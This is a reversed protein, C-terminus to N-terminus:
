MYICFSQYNEKGSKLSDGYSSNTLEGYCYSYVEEVWPVDFTVQGIPTLPLIQIGSIQIKQSGWWLWAGASTSHLNGVTVLNRLQQEPYPTQTENFKPYLHYYTQSAAIEIALLM